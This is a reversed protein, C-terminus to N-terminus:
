DTALIHEEDALDDNVRAVLEHFEPRFPWEMWLELLEEWQRANLMRPTLHAYRAEFVVGGQDPDWASKWRPFIYDAAGPVLADLGQRIPQTSHNLLSTLILDFADAARNTHPGTQRLLPHVAKPQIDILSCPVNPLFDSGHVTLPEYLRRDWHLLPPDQRYLHLNDKYTVFEEAFGKPNSYLKAEWEAAAQKIEEPSAKGSRKLATIDDLDSMFEHMREHKREEWNARWRFRKMTKYEESDAPFVDEDHAAELQHMEKLFPRRFVPPKTGPVPATRTRRQRGLYESHVRERPLRIRIDAEKMRKWTAVASHSDLNDDRVYWVSDSGELGCVERVWDCSLETEVALKKRKQMVKPIIGYKDDFRTWILMRVLGYRQFLSSTKISEVFQYLLLSAISQFNLFRRRPHFAINATVLLTDNRQSLQAEDPQQQHPLYEPTLVSNLERWVLGSAPVLTTNDRDLLPKLFPKYLEADPEMLIHSRPQLFDHLKRSWLGAGPYIDLLDCGKHRKLTPGAYNIIHDCLGEDVINIRAKDGTLISKPPAKKRNKQPGRRAATWVGTAALQEALPTTAQLLTEDLSTSTVSYARCFLPTLAAPAHSRVPFM